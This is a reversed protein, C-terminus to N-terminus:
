KKGLDRNLYCEDSTKWHTSYFLRIKFIKYIHYYLVPIFLHKGLARLQYSVHPHLALMSGAVIAGDCRGEKIHHYACELATGSGTDASDINISSGNLGLFFSVRNPIMAKSCGM